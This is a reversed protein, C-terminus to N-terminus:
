KKNFPFCYKLYFSTPVLNSKSLLFFLPRLFEFRKKYTKFDIHKYTDKLKNIITTKGAFNHGEFAILLGRMPEINNKINKEM